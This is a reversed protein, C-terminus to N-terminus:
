EALSVHYNVPCSLANSILCYREALEALKQAKDSLDEGTARVRAQVDVHTFRLGDKTKEVPAEIHSEYSQVDVALKQAFHYFVLMLCSNISAVFLEEPNLTDARGGYAVPAGIAADKIGSMTLTATNTGTCRVVNKFVTM